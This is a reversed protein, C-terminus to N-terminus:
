EKINIKIELYVGYKTDLGVVYILLNNVTKKVKQLFFTMRGHEM